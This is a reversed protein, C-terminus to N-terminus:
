LGILHRLLRKMDEWTFCNGGKNTMTEYSDPQIQLAKEYAVVAEAHKGLRSLTLGKNTWAGYSDPQIEITKEYAVLADEYRGM